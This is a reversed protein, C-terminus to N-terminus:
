FSSLGCPEVPGVEGLKEGPGELPKPTSASRRPQEEANDTCTQNRIM